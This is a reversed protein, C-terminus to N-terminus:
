KGYTDLDIMHGMRAAKASVYNLSYQSNPDVICPERGTINVGLERLCSIKRPNNTMLRISRVEMDALIDRVSEYRRADDPLGLERNADVTDLGTEQMAYAAVKNALGIGRGEQPLYLVMGHGVEQIHKLAYDLQEKCDCRLSGFVESTQCQDHVRCIVDSTGEVNGVVMALPEEGTLKDRYARMRFRGLKTPLGTEAVFEYLQQELDHNDCAHTHKREDEYLEEQARADAEESWTSDSSAESTTSAVSRPREEPSTSRNGTIDSSFFVPNRNGSQRRNVAMARPSRRAKSKALLSPYNKHRYIQTSESAAPHMAKRMEDDGVARQTNDLLLRTHDEGRPARPVSSFVKVAELAKHFCLKPHKGNGFGINSIPLSIIEGVFNSLAGDKGLYVPKITLVNWFPMGDKRYNLIAVSRHRKSVIADKIDTIDAPDTGEGQLFSCKRGVFEELSYGTFRLFGENVKTIRENADTIVTHSPISLANSVRMADERIEGEIDQFFHGSLNITQADDSNSVHKAYLPKPGYVGDGNRSANHRPM